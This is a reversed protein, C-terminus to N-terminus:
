NIPYPGGVSHLAINKEKILINIGGLVGECFCGSFYKVLYMLLRHKTMIVCLVLWWPPGPFFSFFFFFHLIHTSIFQHSTVNSLILTVGTYPKNQSCYPSRSSNRVRFTHTSLCQARRVLDRNFHYQKSKDLQFFISCNGVYMTKVSGNRVKWNLFEQYISNRSSQFKGNSFDGM